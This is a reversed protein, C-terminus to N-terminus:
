FDAMKDICKRIISLEFGRGMAYKILKISREYDNGGKISKQKAILIPKLIEIYKEEPVNDLIREVIDSDIHKMYLAQEIKRRGWRTYTIKDNVFAQTYREDDIYKKTKLTNIIREEVEEGLNYKRLKQKIDGACYETKACLAAMKLLAQKETIEKM